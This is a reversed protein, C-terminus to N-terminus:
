DKEALRGQGESESYEVIFEEVNTCSRKTHQNKNSDENELRRKRSSELEDHRIRLTESLNPRRKWASVFNMSKIFPDTVEINKKSWHMVRSLKCLGTNDGYSM